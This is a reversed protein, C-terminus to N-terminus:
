RGRRAALNDQLAGLPCVACWARPKWVLAMLTAAALTVLCVLWFFSGIAQLSPWLRATQGVACLM